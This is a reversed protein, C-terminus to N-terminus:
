NDPMVISGKSEGTCEENERCIEEGRRVEGEKEFGMRPDQKQNVKFPSIKTGM